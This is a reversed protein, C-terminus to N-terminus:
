SAAGPTIFNDLLLTLTRNTNGPKLITFSVGLSLNTFFETGDALGKFGALFGVGANDESSLDQASSMEITGSSNAGGANASISSVTVGQAVGVVSVGMGKAIGYTNDLHLTADSGTTAGGAEVKFGEGVQDVSSLKISVASILVGIASFISKAGQAHFTLTAGDSNLTQAASLTIRKKEVGGISVNPEVKTVFPTGSLNPGSVLAMGAVIDTTSDVLLTTSSSTTGDLTTTAIFVINSDLNVSEFDPALGNSGSQTTANVLNAENQVFATKNPAITTVFNAIPPSTTYNSTNATNYALTIVTDTIQSIRKNIVQKNLNISTQTSPDAILIVNYDVSSVVSPFQIARTFTSGSIVGKLNCRPVHGLVFINNKFDYFKGASDVVQLIFASNNDGAINVQRSQGAAPINLVNIDLSKIEM